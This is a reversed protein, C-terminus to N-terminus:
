KARNEKAKKIMSKATIENIDPHRPFPFKFKNEFMWIDHKNGNRFLECGLEKLYKELKQRKM